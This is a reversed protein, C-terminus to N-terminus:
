NAYEDGGIIVSEYGIFVSEYGALVQQEREAPVCEQCKQCSIFFLPLCLLTYPCEIFMLVTM